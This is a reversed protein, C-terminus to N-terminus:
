TFSRITQSYPSIFNAKFLITGDLSAPKQGENSLPDNDDLPEDVIAAYSCSGAALGKRKSDFGANAQGIGFATFRVALLSTEHVAFLFLALSWVHWLSCVSFLWLGFWRNDGTRAQKKLSTDLSRL